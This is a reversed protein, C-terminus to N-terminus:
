AQMLKKEKKNLVLMSSTRSHKFFTGGQQKLELKRIEQATISEITKNLDNEDEYESDNIYDPEKSGLLSNQLRM